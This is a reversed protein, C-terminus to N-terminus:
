QAEVSTEVSYLIPGSVQYNESKCFVFGSNKYGGFPRHADDDEITLISNEYTVHAFDLKDIVKEGEGCVTAGLAFDIGNAQEIVESSSDFKALTFIPGYKESLLLPSNHATEIVFPTILNDSFIGEYLVKSESLNSKILGRLYAVHDGNILPGVRVNNELNTGCKIRTLKEILIKVFDDFVSRHVYFREAALCDQGSNWLRSDVAIEAASELNASELVIFPNYGSGSYIFRVDQPILSLVSAVSGWQGTFSVADVKEEKLCLDELFWKGPKHLSIPMEELIGNTALLNFVSDIIDFSLSSPKVLVKNGSFVPGFAYLVLGYLPTNFPLMVGVKGLPQRQDLYIVEREFTTLARLTKDLELRAMNLTEINCLWSIVDERNDELVKATLAFLDVLDERKM